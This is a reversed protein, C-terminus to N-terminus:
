TILLAMALYKMRVYAANVKGLYWELGQVVHQAHGTIILILVGM